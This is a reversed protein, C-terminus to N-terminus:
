KFHLELAFRAESLNGSALIHEMVEHPACVNELASGKSFAKIGPLLSEILM